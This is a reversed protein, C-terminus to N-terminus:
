FLDDATDLLWLARERLVQSALDRRPAATSVAQRLLREFAARDGAPLAIAEARVVLAAVSTGGAAADARALFREAAAAKGGPRALEFQAM